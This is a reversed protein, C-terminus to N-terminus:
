KTFGLPSEHNECDGNWSDWWKKVVLFRLSPIWPFPVDDFVARPLSKLASEMHSFFSAPKLYTTSSVVCSMHSNCFLMFYPNDLLCRTNLPFYRLTQIEHSLTSRVHMETSPTKGVIQSRWMSIQWSSGRFSVHCRFIFGQFLLNRHFVM